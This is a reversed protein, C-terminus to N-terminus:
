EHTAGRVARVLFMNSFERLVPRDALATDFREWRRLVWPVLRPAVREVWNVPGLYVGHVRMPGFGASKFENRLRRSTHFVQRLRTLGPLGVSSAIRNVLWYGNLNLLPTATVLCVGGPRLVRAIERLCGAPDRLYRLVEICLVVDFQGSPFPLAEVDACETRVSPNGARARAVMEPSGDVGAVEFGRRRLGALHHGTGCGVDLARLGRGDDPLCRDLITQLRHRSYGFCSAYPDVALREYRAIFKAAEDSHHAIARRKQEAQARASIGKAGTDLRWSV